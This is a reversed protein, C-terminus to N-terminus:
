CTSPWTGHWSLALPLLSVNECKPSGPGNSLSCLAWVWGFHQTFPWSPYPMLVFPMRLFSLTLGCVDSYFLLRLCATRCMNEPDNQVCINITVIMQGIFDDLKVTSWPWPDPWILDCKRILIKVCFACTEQGSNGWPELYSMKRRRHMSTWFVVLWFIVDDINARSIVKEFLANTEWNPIHYIIKEDLSVVCYYLYRKGM